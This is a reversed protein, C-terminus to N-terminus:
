DDDGDDDDDDYDDEDHEHDHEHPRPEPEFDPEILTILEWARMRRDEFNYGGLMQKLMGAMGCKDPSANAMYRLEELLEPKSSVRYRCYVSSPYAWDHDPKRVLAEDYAEIALQWEGQKARMDGIDLLSTEDKPDFAAARRLWSVAADINGSRKHAMAAATLSNFTTNKEAYSETLEIADELRGSKSLLQGKVIIGRDSIGNVSQLKNVVDLANNLYGKAIESNNDPYEQVMVSITSLIADQDLSKIAEDTLWGLGWAEIFMSTPFNRTLNQLELLAEALHGERNMAYISMAWYGAYPQEQCDQLYALAESGALELAKDLLATWDQRTPDWLLAPALGAFAGEWDQQDLATAAEQACLAADEDTFEQECDQECDEETSESM